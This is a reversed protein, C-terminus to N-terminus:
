GVFQSAAETGVPGGGAQVAAEILVSWFYEGFERSFYLQYGPIGALDQRVLLGQIEAFRSQACRMDPLADNAVNLDSVTRLLAAAAPGTIAVGALGSSVDVLHLCPYSQSNLYDMATQVDGLPTVVMYEDQTLRAVLLDVRGAPATIQYQRVEGITQDSAGPALTRVLSLSDDGVLRVKGKPSIDSVGVTERLMRLEDQANTSYRAAQQWGDTIAMVAGGAVQVHHMATRRLPTPDARM